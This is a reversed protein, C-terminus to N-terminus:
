MHNFSLYLNNIQTFFSSYVNLLFCDQYFILFSHKECADILYMFNLYSDSITKWAGTKM